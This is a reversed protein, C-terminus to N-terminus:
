GDDREARLWRLQAESLPPEFGAPFMLMRPQPWMSEPGHEGCHLALLHPGTGCAEHQYTRGHAQCFYSFRWCDDEDAPAHLGPDRIILTVPEQRDFRPIPRPDCWLLRQPLM